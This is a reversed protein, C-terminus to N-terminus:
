SNNRKAAEVLKLFELVPLLVFEDEKTTKVVNAGIPFQPRVVRLRPKTKTM